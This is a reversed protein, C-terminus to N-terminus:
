DEGERRGLARLGLRHLRDLLRWTPSQHIQRLADRLRANDVLIADLHPAAPAREPQQAWRRLPLATREPTFRQRLWAHARSAMKGDAGAAAIRQIAAAAQAPETAHLVGAAAMDHTLGSHPTGLVELGMWTFLHVRTRSGLMAECGPRDLYLGLHADSLVLPLADHQVWGRVSVRSRFPSQQRWREFRAYGETYHGAIGGGTVVVSLEPLAHLSESLASVIAEDDLWTNFGGCLAIVFPSGPHRRRPLVQPLDLGYAIPVVAGIGDPPHRHGLRGILGLQGLLALRQRESIVSIRDARSLVTMAASRAAATRVEDLRAGPALSVAQLEAFPDGPLDAWVPRDGAILCAAEGPRYPGASVILDAPEALARLTELWGPAEPDVTFAGAFPGDPQSAPDPGLSVVRVAHDSALARQFHALRLQPFGLQRATPSPLPGVGILLVNAV